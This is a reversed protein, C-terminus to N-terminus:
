HIDAIFNSKRKDVIQPANAAMHKMDYTRFLQHGNFFGKDPYENFRPDLGSQEVYRWDAFQRFKKLDEGTIESPNVWGIAVDYAIAKRAHMTHGVITSHDTANPNEELFKRTQTKMDGEDKGLRGAAREMKLRANIEYRLGAETSADGGGDIGHQAGFEGNKNVYGQAPDKGEDFDFDRRGEYGGARDNPTAARRSLPEFPDPLEPANIGVTWGKKPDDNIRVNVLRTAVILLPATVTTIVKSFFSQRPNYSLRYRAVPAPPNWFRKSHNDELYNYQKWDASGVQFSDGGAKPQAWVRVHFRKGADLADRQAKSVGQWGMGQVPSVGIVQDHPNCYLFVRGRNDRDEGQVYPYPADSAEGMDNLVFRSEGTEPDENRQRDNIEDLPQHAKNFRDVVAQLFNKFTQQRAESTVGGADGELNFGESNSLADMSSSDLNYPPNALIYTDALAGEAIGLMAAGLTVMNGQSHCVVTIPCDPQKHRIAKILEKLRHAAHAYYTRPPCAYVDRGEVPLMNAYIWWFLRDDLGKGWMYPLASTGNQFPGGGWADLENLYIKGAYEKKEDVTDTGDEGAAKYGWRFRIVPSRGPDAIFNKGSVGFDIDGNTLLEPAYDVKRLMARSSQLARDYGLRKNLGDILGEECQEYWEGDSNVGHVFIVLGPLFGVHVDSSDM